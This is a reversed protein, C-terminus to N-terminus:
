MVGLTMILTESYALTAADLPAGSALKATFPGAASLDVETLFLFGTASAVGTTPPLPATDAAPVTFTLPAAPATCIFVATDLVTADAPDPSASGGIIVLFDSAGTGGGTWNLVLPQGHTISSPPSSLAFPQPLTISASFAQIDTGGPGTLTWLGSALFDPPSGLISTSLTKFYGPNIRPIAANKGSGSLTLPTGADLDKPIALPPQLASIASGSPNNPNIPVKLSNVACTGPAALPALNGTNLLSYLSGSNYQAFGGSISQTKQNLTTGAFTAQLTTSSLLFYGVNATGGKDLSALTSAPLGLPAACTNSGASAKSLTAANSVANGIKVAVTIYCGNPVPDKPLTFNIQDEGPYGSRGAYFPTIVQGGIILQVSAAFNGPQPNNDDAGNIPGVGTGWLIGTGGDTIANALGNLPTSAASVYNQLIAPGTGQFNTTFIGFQSHVVTISEAASTGSPTTVTVNAAGEPVKSPLIGNIQTSSIYYLYAPIAAGGSPTINVTVGDKTTPYPASLIKTDPSLNTGIIAIFAGRAIIKGPAFSAANYIKGATIAPQSFGIGAFFSVMLVLVLYRKM